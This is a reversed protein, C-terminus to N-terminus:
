QQTKIDQNSWSVPLFEQKTILKENLNVYPHKSLHDALVDIAVKAEEITEFVFRLEEEM